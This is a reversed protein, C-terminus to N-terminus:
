HAIRSRGSSHTPAAPDPKSAARPLSAMSIRLSQVTHGLDLLGVAPPSSEPQVLHSSVRGVSRYPAGGLRVTPRTDLWLLLLIAGSIPVLALM